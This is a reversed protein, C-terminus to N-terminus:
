LRIPESRKSRLRDPELRGADDRKCVIEAANGIDQADSGYNRGNSSSSSHEKEGISGPGFSAKSRRWFRREDMKVRYELNQFAGIDRRSPCAACAIVM